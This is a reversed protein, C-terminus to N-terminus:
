LARVKNKMEKKDIASNEGSKTKATSCNVMALPPLLRSQKRGLPVGALLGLRDRKLRFWPLPGTALLCWSRRLGDVTNTHTVGNSPRSPKAEQLAGKNCAALYRVITLHSVM